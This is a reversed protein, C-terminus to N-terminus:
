LPRKAAMGARRPFREPTARVKIYLHLYRADVDAPGKVPLAGAPELGLAEAARAGTHEEARRRQGKWAVAVGGERLLPAAYEAIVALPALARALVADQTGCGEHWEEVRSAVVDANGLGLACVARELYAAKRRASEVLTVCARPLVCALPLGPFGAGSGVDAITRAARLAPVDLGALSDAVHAEVARAPDRVTTPARDDADLHVLLRALREEAEGACGHRAALDGLRARV